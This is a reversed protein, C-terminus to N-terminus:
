ARRKESIKFRHLCSRWTENYFSIHVVASNIYYDVMSYIFVTTKICSYSFSTGRCLLKDLRQGTYSQDSKLM